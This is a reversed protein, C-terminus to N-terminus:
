RPVPGCISEFADRSGETDFVVPRGCARVAAADAPSMWALLEPTILVVDARPLAAAFWEHFRAPALLQLANPDTAYYDPVGRKGALEAVRGNCTLVVEGPLERLRAVCAAHAVDPATLAAVTTVVRWGCAAVGLGAAACALPNTGALRVFGCVVCAASPPLVPLYYMVSLSNGAVTILGTTVLTYAAVGKVLGTGRVVFWAAAPLGLVAVPEQLFQWVQAGRDAWDTRLRNAHFGVVNEVYGPLAAAFTLHVVAGAIGLTGLLAASRAPFGARGHAFWGLLLLGPVAILSQLRLVTAAALALGALAFRGRGGSAVFLCATMELCAAPMNTAGQISQYAFM